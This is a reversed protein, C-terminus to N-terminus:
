TAGSPRVSIKDMTAEIDKETFLQEVDSVKSVRVYDTVLLKYVAKTPQTMFVQGKFSTQVLNM